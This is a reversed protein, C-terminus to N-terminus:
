KLRAAEDKGITKQVLRFEAIELFEASENVRHTITELGINTSM